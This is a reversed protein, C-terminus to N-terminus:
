KNCVILAYCPLRSPGELCPPVIGVYSCCATGDTSAGSTACGRWAPPRWTWNRDFHHGISDNRWTCLKIKWLHLIANIVILNRNNWAMEIIVLGPVTSIKLIVKSQNCTIYFQLWIPKTVHLLETNVWTFKSHIDLIYMLARGQKEKDPIDGKDEDWGDCFINFQDRKNKHKFTSNQLYQLKCVKVRFSNNQPIFKSQPM